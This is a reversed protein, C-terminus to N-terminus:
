EVPILHVTSCLGSPNSEWTAADFPKYHINVMLFPRWKEGERRELDALRNAMLNTVEIQLQNGTAQLKDDPLWLRYPSTICTGLVEGNLLVRASHRVEGLDLWYGRARGRAGGLPRDITTQYQATGSFARLMHVEEASSGEWKTWDTLQSLSRPPPLNPGGELFIVSWNGTLPVAQAEPSVPRYQWAPIDTATEQLRVLLSAGAPLVLRLGDPTFPVTGTEGTMPDSLVALATDGSRLLSLTSDVDETGPNAIFYVTEGGIKRRIFGLHVGALPERVLGVGQLLTALDSGVRGVKILREKAKQLRALRREREFFGPIDTPLRHLFLVPIGGEALEALREMTEPPIRQCGAILIAKYPVGDRTSLRQKHVTLNEQLQQDSILDFTWGGESLERATAVFEPLSGRLYTQTRGVTMFQLLDHAGEESALLDFFPFYLLIDNDPIGEQLIEQCRTIYANLTPLDRWFPNTPACHTTAYFLWGPWPVDAPSYPTGHFFIHNIGLCFLQDVEAKLHSLPVHGHEGLWTFSESSCLPKGTIHAASSAFRCLLAEEASGFPLPQEARFLPLAPDVRRLPGFIETEPIDALAYLDLLNGPSGHAQNRMKAGQQHSWDRFLHLFGATLEHITQRYDSRVQAVIAPDGEGAFECLYERLDYGRRKKFEHWLAPTGNAGFVEWSDNFFCRPAPVGSLAAFYHQGAKPDFHDFVNGEGGPAARKVKQETYEMFLAYIANDRELSGYLTAEPRKKSVQQKGLPLKEVWIRRAADEDAVWAGGFPWGTGAIVDVGLDLRKAEHLTFAFLALWRPSLFPVFRDEYGRAGYIPSVEV